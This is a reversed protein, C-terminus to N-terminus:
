INIGWGIQSSYINHAICQEVENDSFNFIENIDFSKRNNLLKQFKKSIKYVIYSCDKISIYDSIPKNIFTEYLNCKNSYRIDAIIKLTNYKRNKKDEKISTFSVDNKLYFFLIRDTIDHPFADRIIRNTYELSLNNKFSYIKYFRTTIKFDNYLNDSSNSSIICGLSIIKDKNKMNVIINKYYNKNEKIVIGNKLMKPM